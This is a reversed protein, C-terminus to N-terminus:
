NAPKKLDAIVKEAIAVRAPVDRIVITENRAEVQSLNLLTRLATVVEAVQLSDGDVAITKEVQRELKRRNTQNDPAVVITKSDVVQWFTRTEVGLL